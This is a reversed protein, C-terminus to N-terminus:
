LRYSLGLGMEYRHERIEPDIQGDQGLFTIEDYSLSEFALRAELFLHTTLPRLVGVGARWGEGKLHDGSGNPTMRSWLYGATVYPETKWTKKFFPYLRAGITGNYAWFKEYRRNTTGDSVSLGGDSANLSPTWEVGGDFECLPHVRFGAGAYLGAAPSLSLESSSFFNGTLRGEMLFGRRREAPPPTKYEEYVIKYIDKTELLYSTPDYPPNGILIAKDTDIQIKGKYVTGDKMVVEDAQSVSITAFFASLALTAWSLRKM